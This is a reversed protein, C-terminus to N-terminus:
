RHKAELREIENNLEANEIYEPNALTIKEALEKWVSWYKSYRKDITIEKYYDTVVIKKIRNAFGHKVIILANEFRIAKVKTNSKQIIAVDSVSLRKRFIFNGLSIFLFIPLYCILPLGRRTGYSRRHYGYEYRMYFTFAVWIVAVIVVSISGAITLNRVINESIEVSKEKKV